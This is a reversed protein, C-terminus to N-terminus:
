NEKRGLSTSNLALLKQFYPNITLVDFVVVMKEYDKMEALGDKKQKWLGNIVVKEKEQM